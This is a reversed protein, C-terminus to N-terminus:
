QTKNRRFFSQTPLSKSCSPTQHPSIQPKAALTYNLQPPFHNPPVTSCVCRPPELTWTSAFHMFNCISTAITAHRRTSLTTSSRLFAIVSPPFNHLHYLSSIVHRFARAPLNPHFPLSFSLTPRLPTNHTLRFATSLRYRLFTACKKDLHDALKYLTLYSETALNRFRRVSTHSTLSSLQRVLTITDPKKPPLKKFNLHYLTNQITPLQLLLHRLLGHFIVPPRHIPNSLTRPLTLEVTTHRFRRLTKLSLLTHSGPIFLFSLTTQSHHLVTDFDESFQDPSPTKSLPQTSILSPTIFRNATPRPHTDNRFRPPLNARRNFPNNPSPQKNLSPHLTSIVYKEYTRANAPNAKMVSICWCGPSRALVRHFYLKNSTLRIAVSCKLHECCRRYACTDMARDFSGVYFDSSFPSWIIYVASNLNTFSTIPPYRFIIPRIRAPVLPFFSIFSVSLSLFLFSAYELSAWSIRSSCTPFLISTKLFRHLTSLFRLHSLPSFSLHPPIYCALQGRVRAECAAPPGRGEQFQGSLRTSTSDHQDIPNRLIQLVHHPKRPQFRWPIQVVRRPGNPNRRITCKSDPQHNARLM